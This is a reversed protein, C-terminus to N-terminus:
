AGGGILRVLAGDFEGELLAGVAVYLSAARLSDPGTNQAAIAQAALALEAAALKCHAQARALHWRERASPDGPPAEADSPLSGLPAVREGPRATDPDGGEGVTATPARQPPVTTGARQPPKTLGGEDERDGGGAASSAVRGTGGCEDCRVVKVGDATSRAIEGSAFCAACPMTTDTM